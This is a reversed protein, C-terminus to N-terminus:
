LLQNRYVGPTVGIMKKFVKNYYSQSEFGCLQMVQKISLDRRNLLEISNEIRVRILYDHITMHMKEKFLVSLYSSSLSVSQAIEEMTIKKSYHDNIYKQVSKIVSTHEKTKILLYAADLLQQLIQYTYRFLEDSHTFQQMYDNHKQVLSMVYGVEIGAEILARSSVIMLEQLMRRINHPNHSSLIEIDTFLLPILKDTKEKDAMRMYQLLRRERRLYVSMDFTEDQLLRKQQNLRDQIINRWDILSKQEMFSYNYTNAFYNIIVFLLNAASQCQEVSVIKLKQSERKLCVFDEEPIDSLHLRLEEFFLEDPTWLLVQGCVVAGIPTQDVIIPVAWMVMGAHCEFFCPEKWRIAEHCIKRYNNSCKTCGDPTNCKIYNCFGVHEFNQSSLFIEGDLNIAAVNMGTSDSYIDLMEQLDNKSRSSSEFHTTENSNM